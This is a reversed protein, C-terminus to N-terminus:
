SSLESPTIPRTIDLFLKAHKALVIQGCSFIGTPLFSSLFRPSFSSSYSKPSALDFVLYMKWIMVVVNGDM